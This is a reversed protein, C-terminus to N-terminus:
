GKYGADYLQAERFSKSHAKIITTAYLYTDSKRDATLAVGYASMVHAYRQAYSMKKISKLVEDISNM